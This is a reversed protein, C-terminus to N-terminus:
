HGCFSVVADICRQIGGVYAYPGAALSISCAHTPCGSLAREIPKGLELPTSNTQASCTHLFLLLLILCFKAPRSMVGGDNEIQRRPLRMIYSFPFNESICGFFDESESVVPAM